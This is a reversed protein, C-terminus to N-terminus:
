VNTYLHTNVTEFACLNQSVETNFRLDPINIQKSLNSFNRQNVYDGNVIRIQSTNRAEDVFERARSKDLAGIFIGPALSDPIMGM